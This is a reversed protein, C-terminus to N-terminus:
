MSALTSIMGIMPMSALRNPRLFRYRALRAIKVIADINHPRARESSVITSTRANWPIPPPTSM